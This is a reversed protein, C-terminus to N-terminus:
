LNIFEHKSMPKEATSLIKVLFKLKFIIVISLWEDCKTNFCSGSQISVFISQSKFYFFTIAKVQFYQVEPVNQITEQLELGAYKWRSNCLSTM